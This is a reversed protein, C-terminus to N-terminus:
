ELDFDAIYSSPIVDKCLSRKYITPVKQFKKNKKFEQQM